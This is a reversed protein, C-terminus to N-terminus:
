SRHRRSLQNEILQCIARVSANRKEPGLFYNRNQAEFTKSNLLNQLDSPRKLINIGYPLKLGKTEHPQYSVCNLDLLHAEVLLMSTMGVILDSAALLEYVNAGTFDSLVARGGPTAEKWSGSNERPHRKVVLKIPHPLSSRNLAEILDRMVMNEDYGWKEAGHDLAIPQSLFSVVFDNQSFGLKSRLHLPGAKDLTNEKIDWLRELYPNGTIQISSEPFGEDVLGEKMSEDAVCIVNPLCDLTERSDSSYRIRYNSWFDLISITFIGLSRAAAIFRGEINGLRSDRLSSGSILAKPGADQLVRLITKEDYSGDVIRFPINEQRLTEQGHDAVFCQFLIRRSRIERIVPFLANFSGPQNGVFVCDAKM